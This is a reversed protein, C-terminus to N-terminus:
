VCARRPRAGMFGRRRKRATRPPYRAPLCPAQRWLPNHILFIVLVSDCPFAPCCRKKALMDDEYFLRDLTKYNPSCQTVTVRTRAICSDGSVSIVTARSSTPPFAFENKRKM